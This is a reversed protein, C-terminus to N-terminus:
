EKEMVLEKLVAEELHIGLAERRLISEAFDLNVIIESKDGLKVVFINRDKLPRGDRRLIIGTDTINGKVEELVVLFYRKVVGKKSDALLVEKSLAPDGYMRIVSMMMESFLLFPYSVMDPFLTNETVTIPFVQLTKIKYFQEKSMWDPKFSTKWDEIKPGHCFREDPKLVFYKM